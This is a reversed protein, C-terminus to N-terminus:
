WVFVCECMWSGKPSEKSTWFWPDRRAVLFMLRQIKAPDKPGRRANCCAITTLSAQKLALLTLNPSKRAIKECIWLMESRVWVNLTVFFFPVLPQLLCGKRLKGQPNLRCTPKHGLVQYLKSGKQSELRHHNKVLWGMQFSIRMDDFQIM